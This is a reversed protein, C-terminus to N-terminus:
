ANAATSQSRAVLTRLQDLQLEGIANARTLGAELQNIALLLGAEDAADIRSTSTKHDAALGLLEYYLFEAQRATLRISVM